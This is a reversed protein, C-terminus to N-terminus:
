GSTRKLRDFLGSSSSVRVNQVIGTVISCLAADLGANALLLRDTCHVACFADPIWCNAAAATTEALSHDTHVCISSDQLWM